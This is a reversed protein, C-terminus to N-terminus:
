KMMKALELGTTRGNTLVDAIANGGLRNSGHIGGTVEGVAYLDPIVKGYRDIVQNKTNIVVGGMTHHVSMGAYGAWFPAETLKNLNRPNKGMKDKQADVGKNFEEITAKLAAPDVKMQKALDEITDAKWADGSKLGKQAMAAHGPNFHSFGKNDVISFATQDPLALIADRIVDRRDDEAVFRQGKRDVMIFDAARLHFIMREKRGPPCGPNCQIHDMGTVEAGIDQMLPILDGTAGAHNTTTLRLLRPDHLARMQPNAAFGGSCVVVAKEAMANIKKGEKNVYQVGVVRDSLQQERYIKTVRCNNMIPVNLKKCEAVLVKIYDGGLAGVTGHARPYLGGYIQYVKPEFKVGMKELWQVTEYTNETLHKVLEPNGRFDGGKLTQEAHLAPSDKINQQGQRVPDYSNFGGGSIATNGGTYAMKELVVIGKAGHQAASVATALGAGGSGVIIFNFKEDWKAPMSASVEAAFAPATAAIATGTLATKLFNRRKLM